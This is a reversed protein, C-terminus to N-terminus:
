QEILRRTRSFKGENFNSGNILKIPIIGTEPPISSSKEHNFYM